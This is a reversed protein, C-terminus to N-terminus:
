TVFATLADIRLPLFKIHRGHQYEPRGAMRCMTLIQGPNGQAASLVKGRFGGVDLNDLRFATRAMEFLTLAETRRLPKLAVEESPDWLLKRLFGLSDRSKATVILCVRPIYYVRQLFRYMTPDADQVDELVVCQPNKRLADLVAPKLSASTANRLSGFREAPCSLREALEALLRHLEWPGEISVCPQQSLLIAEQLLRTKGIGKPGHVLFSARACLAKSLTRVEDRRGLMPISM